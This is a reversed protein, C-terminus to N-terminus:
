KQALAKKVEALIENLEFPKKFCSFAGLQMAKREHDSNRGICGSLIIIPIGEAQMVELFQFGDMRPSILDSIILDPNLVPILEYFEDKYEHAVVEYGANRLEASLLERFAEEDDLVAIMSMAYEPRVYFGQRSRCPSM